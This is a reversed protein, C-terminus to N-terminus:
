TSSRIEQKKQSLRRGVRGHRVKLRYKSRGCGKGGSETLSPALEHFTITSM